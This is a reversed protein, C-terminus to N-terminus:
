TWFTGAPLSAAPGVLAPGGIEALVAYLRAAAEAPASGAPLKGARYWAMLAALEAPSAAGTLPAITEAKGAM